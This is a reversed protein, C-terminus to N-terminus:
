FVEYVEVLAEGVQDAVGAVQVTYNGPALTVLLAADRSDRTLSFAGVQAFAPALGADWNDNEAVLTQDSFVRIAPDALCEPVGFASLGPGIGRVLLRKSGAGAVSLGAILIDADTGVRNRASLAAFRPAMGEGLDYAEMLVVGGPEGLLHATFAGDLRRVLAADGSGAGYPFAGAEGFRAGAEAGWNDNADVQTSGSFVELRPDAMAGPVQFAALAPGGARVLVERGGATMAMGAIMRQGGALAARVSLGRLRATAESRVSLVVAASTVAGLANRVTVQYRGAQEASVEHLTLRAGTAGALPVGDKSWQYVLDAGAAEVGIVATNGLLVGTNIPAATIVPAGAWAFTMVARGPVMYSFARGRWTVTLTAAAAPQNYVLLVMSGDPNRFAVTEFAGEWHTSDVRVAGPRVFKSLHGLHYYQPNFTVAGSGNSPITVMGQNTNNVGILAPGDTEDLALNWLIISRSWNRPITVMEHALNDFTDNWDGFGGETFWIEKDPYQSRLSTMASPSGGYHHFASGAVFAAAGADGLITLPTSLADYNHDFCLIKTALGAERLAPGLHERIYTAQEAPTMIMGPYRAPSYGPENQPTIAAIPIGLAQYAQIFKVMYAAFASRYEPKLTGGIMSGSTKMWGPPSWPSATVTLEPNLARALRVMPVIYREDKAISFRSLTPDAEGDNYSYMESTFDSSGVVQRLLSMRIGRSGFLAAMVAERQAASLKNTLLWASSDTISLGFGAITQYTVSDDVTVARTSPESPAGFAADPQRALKATLDSTTLWAEVPAAWASLAAGCLSLVWRGARWRSTGTGYGYGKITTM